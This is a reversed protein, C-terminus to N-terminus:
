PKKNSPKIFSVSYVGEGYAIIIEEIMSALPTKEKKARKMAKNYDSDTIKYSRPKRITNM